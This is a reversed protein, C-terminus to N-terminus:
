NVRTRYLLCRCRVITCCKKRLVEQYAAFYQRASEADDWEVAYSLVVRRERKNEDLAYLGGRWHPALEGARREDLFQEILIAHDMEGVTGAVLRKYGRSSFKPLAPRTPMVADFYKQPHLVQQTSVPPQRFVQTFADQDLKECVANQFLMGQTYPFM